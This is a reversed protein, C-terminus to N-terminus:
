LQGILQHLLIFSRYLKNVFFAINPRTFVCYQLARVLSRFRTVDELLEGDFESLSTDISM